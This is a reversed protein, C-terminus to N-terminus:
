VASNALDNQFQVQVIGALGPQEGRVARIVHHDVALAVVAADHHQRFFHAYVPCDRIEVIQAGRMEVVKEREPGVHQQQSHM